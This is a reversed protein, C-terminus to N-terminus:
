TKFVCLRVGSLRYDLTHCLVICHRVVYANQIPKLYKIEQPIVEKQIYDRTLVCDHYVNEKIDKPLLWKVEFTNNTNYNIQRPLVVAEAKQM